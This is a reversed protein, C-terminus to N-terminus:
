IRVLWIILCVVIAQSLVGLIPKDDLNIGSQLWLHFRRLGTFPERRWKISIFQLADPLIAGVVGCLVIFFSYKFYLGFILYSILFGVVGDFSIKLLDQWFKHNIIMEDNAPNNKDMKMSGLFYGWHPIADLVFHSVFGVAFGLLPKNPTLSAVAAGTIAHATLTM